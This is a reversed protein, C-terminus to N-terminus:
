NQHIDNTSSLHLLECFTDFGRKIFKLYTIGTELREESIM